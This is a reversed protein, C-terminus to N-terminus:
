EYRLAEIPSKKSAKHAPYIGFILGIVASVSVGLAAAPISVGAQWNVGLQGSIVAAMAWSIGAGLLIGIVGGAATLITAEVMFQALINSRTAGLAKRLGIERTRETVSVLMINMIGVGGVLLAVAAISVVAITLIDIISSIQGLLNDQTLIYFDDKKPDTINHNERLTQKIEAVTAPIQNVEKVRVWVENYHDIGLLYTRATTHPVVVLNGVDFFLVQGKNELTGVVRFNKGNIKIREGVASGGIGFLEEEVNQGIVAVKDENRISAENFFTGEKPLLGFVRGMFDIDFGMMLPRYTEGGFEVSGPVSVAPAIEAIGTVNKEDLLSQIDRDKLTTSLATNAFSTPGEPERGPEIWIIDAGLSSIEGTILETAGNGASIIVMISTIGIVIGLITLLSRSKHLLLSQLAVKIEHKINMTQTFTGLVNKQKKNKSM